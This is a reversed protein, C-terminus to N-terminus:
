LRMPMMYMKSASIMSSRPKTSAIMIRAWCDTASFSPPYRGGSWKSWIKLECPVIMIKKMAMGKIVPSILIM